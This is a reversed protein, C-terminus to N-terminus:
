EAAQATSAGIRDLTENLHKRMGVPLQAIMSKNEERFQQASAPDPVWHKIAANMVKYAQIGSRLGWGCKQAFDEHLNNLDLVTRKSLFKGRELSVFGAELDYLYRGVGWRVAARKLADSMMGKEGEVDTAGAGDAKWLWDGAILVGINCIIANGPAPTYNCQWGDPGCVTDLRDMVARANVYCLPKGMREGQKAKGEKIESEYPDRTAGIRWEIYEVPFPESLADFMEQADAM